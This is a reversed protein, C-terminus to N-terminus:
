KSATFLSAISYPFWSLTSSYTTNHCSAPITPMSEAPICETPQDDVPSESGSSVGGSPENDASITPIQPVAVALKNSMAFSECATAPHLTKAALLKGCLECVVKQKKSFSSTITSSSHGSDGTSNIRKASLTSTQDVMLNATFRRYSNTRCINTIDADSTAIAITDPLAYMARWNHTFHMPGFFKVTFIQEGPRLAKLVLLACQCPVKFQQWKGCSCERAQLNVQIQVATANREHVLQVNAVGNDTDFTGAMTLSAQRKSSQEIYREQAFPTLLQGWAKAKVRQSEMMAFCKSLVNKIFYYPNSFRDELMWNFVQEVINSTKMGYLANGREVAKFHQWNETIKSLYAHLRPNVKQIDEMHQEYATETTAKQATHIAQSHVKFPKLNNDLHYQCLMQLAHPLNDRIAKLIATGRDSFVTYKKQNFDVGEEKLLDLLITIDASSESFSLSFAFIIMEMAPTRGAICTVCMKKLITRPSTSIVLPKMHASDIGIVDLCFDVCSKAFPLVVYVAELPANDAEPVIKYRLGPNKNKTALLLPEIMNFSHLQEQITLNVSNKSKKFVDESVSIGVTELIAQASTTPLARQGGAKPIANAIARFENLKSLEM